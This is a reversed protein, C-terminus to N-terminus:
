RYITLRYEGYTGFLSVVYIRYTGNEPLTVDLRSNTGGGGDDDRGLNTGDPNAVYVVADFDDSEVAFGIEAGASGTYEYLDYLTGDYATSRRM